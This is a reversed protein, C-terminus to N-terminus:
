TSIRVEKIRCVGKIEMKNNEKKRDRESQVTVYQYSNREIRGVRNIGMKNNEKKTDSQRDRESEIKQKKM